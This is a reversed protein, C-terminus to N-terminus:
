EVMYEFTGSVAGRTLGVAAGAHRLIDLGEVTVTIQWMGPSLTVNAGYHFGYTPSIVAPLVTSFETDAQQFTLTITAGPLKEEYNLIHDTVDVLFYRSNPPLDQPISEGSETVEYLQVAAQHSLSVHLGGKTFDGIPQVGAAKIVNGQADLRFSGEWTIPELWFSQAGEQRLAQVPSVTVTWAYHADNPLMFNDGFHYGHGAAVMAPTDAEIVTDGSDADQISFHVRVPLREGLSLRADKVDLTIHKMADLSGDGCLELKGEVVQYLQAAPSVNFILQMDGKVTSALGVGHSHPVATPPAAGSVGQDPQYLLLAAVSVPVMVLMFVVPFVIKTRM